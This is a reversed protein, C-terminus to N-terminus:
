KSSSSWHSMKDKIRQIEENQYLNVEPRNVRKSEEQIEASFYKRYNQVSFAAFILFGGFLLPFRLKKALPTKQFRNM